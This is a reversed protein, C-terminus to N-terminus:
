SMTRIGRCKPFGPCGWFPSGDKQRQRRVMATGCRPCVPPTNASACAHTVDLNQVHEDRMKDSVTGAWQRIVSTIEAVQREQICPAGFTEIYPVLRSGYVVGQPMETKFEAWGVFAVVNRVLSRPIGTLESLVAVHKFNQRLPNQFAFRRGGKFCITWQKSDADGFVWGGRRGDGDFNKAEVVFVGYTSVVIADVQTTMRNHTPLYIDYIVEYYTPLGDLYRKLKWEGTEGIVDPSNGDLVNRLIFTLWNM